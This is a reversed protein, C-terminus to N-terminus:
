DLLKRELKRILICNIRISCCFYFVLSFSMFFFDFLRIISIRNYFSLQLSLGLSFDLAVLVVDCDYDYDDDNYDITSLYRMVEMMCLLEGRTSDVWCISGRRISLSWERVHKKEIRSVTDCWWYYLHCSFVM